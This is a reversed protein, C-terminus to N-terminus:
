DPDEMSYRWKQSYLDTMLKFVNKFVDAQGGAAGMLDGHKVGTVELISASPLDAKQSDLPVMEDGRMSKIATVTLGDPNSVDVECGVVTSVGTAVVARTRAKLMAKGPLSDLERDLREHFDFAQSARLQVDALIQDRVKQASDWWGSLTPKHRASLADTALALVNYKQTSTDSYLDAVNTVEFSITSPTGFSSFEHHPDDAIVKLWPEQNMRYNRTPLLEWLGRIKCIMTLWEWGTSGMVLQMKADSEDNGSWARRYLLPTGYNPTGVQVVGILRKPTDDNPNKLMKQLAARVALGGMSHAVYIFGEVGDQSLALKTKEIIRDCAQENSLVWNYGVLWLVPEFPLKEKECEIMFPQYRDEKAESWGRGLRTKLDKEPSELVAIDAPNSLNEMQYVSSQTINEMVMDWASNVNWLKAKTKTNVLSTASVGPVVIVAVKPNEPKM